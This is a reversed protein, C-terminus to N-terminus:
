VAVGMDAQAIIGRQTLAAQFDRAVAAGNTAQTNITVQNISVQTGSTGHLRNRSLWSRGRDMDAQWDRRHEWNRGQPRMFNTIYNTLADNANRSTLVSRGGQDGGRLEWLMFQLQEQMSPNNGYRRFLEDRRSGLWQGIGFAGSQQNLANPDFRSEAWVGATIGRAVDADVGNSMLFRTITDRRQTNVPSAMDAPAPSGGSPRGGRARRPAPAASSQGGDLPGVIGMRQLMAYVYSAGIFGTSGGGFVGQLIAFIKQNGSLGLLDMLGNVVAGIAAALGLWPNIAALTVVAIAQMGAEVAPLLTNTRELFQVFDTFGDILPPLYKRGVQDMTDRLRGLSEDLKRAAAANREIQESNREAERIINELEPRGKLAANIFDQNFGLRRLRASFQASDMRGRAETIKLLLDSPDMDRLDQPTIGLGLLDPARGPDGTLLFQSKMGAMASLAADGSGESGGVSRMVQRWGVVRSTTTGLTEGLRGADADARALQSMFTAISAGGAFAMVLGVVERRLGMFATTANKSSKEASDLTRKTEERLRKQEEELEKRKQKFGSIDLGFTAVFADIISAAM